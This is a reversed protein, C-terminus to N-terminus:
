LTAFKISIGEEKVAVMAFESSSDEPEKTVGKMINSTKEPTASMILKLRRLGYSDDLMVYLPALFIVFFLVSIKLEAGMGFATNNRTMGVTMLLNTVTNYLM